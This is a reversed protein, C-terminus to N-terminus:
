AGLHGNPGFKDHQDIKKKIEQEKFKQLREKERIEKEGLYVWWGVVGMGMLFLGGIITLDHPDIM